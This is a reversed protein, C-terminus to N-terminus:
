LVCNKKGVMKLFGEEVFLCNCFYGLFFSKFLCMMEFSGNRIIFEEVVM